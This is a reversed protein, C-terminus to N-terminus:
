FVFRFSVSHIGFVNRDADSQHLFLIFIGRVRKFLIRSVKKSAPSRFRVPVIDGGCSKLDQADALEAVGAHFPHLHIRVVSALQLLNVTQGRQGSPFGDM